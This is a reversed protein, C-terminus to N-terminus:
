IGAKGKRTKNFPSNAYATCAPGFIQSMEDYAMIVFFDVVKSIAVVDYCRGDICDPSWAVDFTVKLFFSINFYIYCLSMNLSLFKMRCFTMWTVFDYYKHQQWTWINELYLVFTVFTYWGTVKQHSTLYELWQAVHVWITSCLKCIHVVQLM